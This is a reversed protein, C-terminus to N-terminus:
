YVIEFHRNNSKRDNQLTKGINGHTKILKSGMLTQISIGVSIERYM